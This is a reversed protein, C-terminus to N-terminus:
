MPATQSEEAGRPGPQALVSAIPRLAMWWQERPRRHEEDVMRQFDALSFLQVKGETLGIFAGEPAPKGAQEILFTVCRAALRTAQIRDFPSPNGGQQLHGLIAQRVEFLDRGEEEFLAGMFATTYLQSARENRILLGL